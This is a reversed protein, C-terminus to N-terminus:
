IYRRVVLRGAHERQQRRCRPPPGIPVENGEEERGEEGDVDGGGDDKRDIDVEQHRAQQNVRACLDHVQLVVQLLEGLLLLKRRRQRDLGQRKLHAGFGGAVLTAIDSNSTTM